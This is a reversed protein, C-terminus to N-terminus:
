IGKPKAGLTSTTTDSLDVRIHRAVDPHTEALTHWTRQAIRRYSPHGKSGSRLEIFHFLERLNWSLTLRRHFAMPVVYEAADKFGAQCMRAHLETTKMMLEHFEAELGIDKIEIPMDYGLDVGLPQNLPTCMRHRQIDRWAGYDLVIEHMFSAHEFERPPADHPGRKALAKAIIQAATGTPAHKRLYDLYFAVPHRSHRALLAAAVRNETESDDKLMVVPNSSTAKNLVSSLSGTQDVISKALDGLDRSLSMQYDNADVYKLLTHIPKRKIALEEDMEPGGHLVEILERGVEQAEPLPSSLLKTIVNAWNRANTTMGFSTKAAAPLLYRAVDCSRGKIQAAYAKDGLGTENPFRQRMYGDLRSLAENYLGFLATMHERYSTALPSQAIDSPVYCRQASFIQYRSSKETFSSLRADELIKIIVQSVGEFAVSPVAHEAVSGHGFGVVWKEHFASASEETADWVNQDFPTDTRSCKAIAVALVEPNPTLVVKTGDELEREMRNLWYVRRESLDAPLKLQPKATKETSM